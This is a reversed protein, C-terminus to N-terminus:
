SHWGGDQDAPLGYADAQTLHGDQDSVRVLQSGRRFVLQLGHEIEWDCDCAVQIYVDKDWRHRRDVYIGTVRVHDWVRDPDTIEVDVESVAEASDSFNKFVQGTAAGRDELGLALFRQVADVVDPPYESGAAEVILTFRVRKGSLYPVSIPVSVWWEPVDPDQTLDGLPRLSRM